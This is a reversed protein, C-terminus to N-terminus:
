RSRSTGPTALQWVDATAVVLGAGLESFFGVGISEARQPAVWASIATENGAILSVVAHDVYIHVEVSSPTIEAPGVTGARGATGATGAETFASPWPGARVDADLAAGSLRRDLKVMQRALDFAIVTREATSNSTSNSGLVVLGFEMSTGDTHWKAVAQAMASASIDFRAFIELQPGFAAPPLYLAGAANTTPLSLAQVRAHARRLVKLEPVFAQQIFQTSNSNGTTGLTLDRPLSLTNNTLWAGSAPRPRDPELGHPEPTGQDWGNNIWGFLIRRGNPGASTKPCCGFQEMGKSTALALGQDSSSSPTFPSWDFIGNHMTDAQFPKGPSPRDGLYYSAFDFERSFNAGQNISCGPLSASGNM